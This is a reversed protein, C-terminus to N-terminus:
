DQKKSRKCVTESSHNRPLKVQDSHLFFFFIKRWGISLLLYVRPPTLPLFPTGWTDLKFILLCVNLLGERNISKWVSHGREWLKGFFVRGRGGRFSKIITGLITCTMEFTRSWVNEQFVIVSVNECTNPLWCFGNQKAKFFHIKHM